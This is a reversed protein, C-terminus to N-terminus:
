PCGAARWDAIMRSYYRQIIGSGQHATALLHRALRAYHYDVERWPEGVFCNHLQCGIGGLGAKISAANAREWRMRYTRESIVRAKHLQESIQKTTYAM